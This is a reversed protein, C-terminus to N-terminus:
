RIVSEPSRDRRELLEDFFAMYEGSLVDASFKSSVLTRARKGMSGRKEPDELLSKIKKEMDDLDSCIAGVGEGAILGDVDTLSIVPVGFKWAELYVNPFGEVSSTNVLIASSQIYQIVEEHPIRGTCVLNPIGAAKRKITESYAHESEIPGGVLVFEREPIKQALQLFLEPGKVERLAGVWLVKEGSRVEVSDDMDIVMPIVRAPKNFRKLCLERQLHNQAVVGDALKLGLSYLIKDRLGPILLDAFSFDSDSGAGFVFTRRKQRCFLATVGTIMGACHQYYIDADARALARWTGSLRPHFFRIGWVGHNSDYANRAPFPLPTNLPLNKVVLSVDAGRSAFAQALAASQVEAGGYRANQEDLYYPVIDLAVICIKKKDSSVMEVM